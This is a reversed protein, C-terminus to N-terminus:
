SVYKVNQITRNVKEVLMQTRDDCVQDINPYIYEIEVDAKNEKLKALADPIDVLRHSSRGMFGTGGIFYVKQVGRERLKNLAEQFTPSSFELNGM